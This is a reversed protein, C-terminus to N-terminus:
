PLSQKTIICAVERLLFRQNNRGAINKFGSKFEHHGDQGNTIIGDSNRKRFSGLLIVNLMMPHMIRKQQFRM